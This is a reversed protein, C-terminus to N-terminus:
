ECVKKIYKLPVIRSKNNGYYVKAVRIPKSTNTEVVSMYREDIYNEIYERESDILYIGVCIGVFEKEVIKYINQTVSDGYGLLIEYENEITEDNMPNSSVSKCNKKLYASCKVKDFIRIQM